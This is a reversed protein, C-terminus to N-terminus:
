RDLDVDRTPVEVRALHGLGLFHKGVDLLRLVARGIPDTRQDAVQVSRRQTARSKPFGEAAEDCLGSSLGVDPEVGVDLLDVERGRDRQQQVVDRALSHHVRELVGLRRVHPQGDLLVAILDLEDQTVVADPEVRVGGLGLTV